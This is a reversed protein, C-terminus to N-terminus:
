ILDPIEAARNGPAYLRAIQHFKRLICDVHIHVLMFEGTGGDGQRDRFRRLDQDPPNQLHGDRGWQHEISQLVFEGGEGGQNEHSKSLQGDFGCGPGLGRPLDDSARGEVLRLTQIM